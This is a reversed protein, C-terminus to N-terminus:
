TGSTTRRLQAKRKSAMAMKKRKKESPKEFHKRAKNIRHTGEKDTKRKVRRLYKDIAMDGPTIKVQM